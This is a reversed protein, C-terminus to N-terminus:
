ESIPFMNRNTYDEPANGDTDDDQGPTGAGRLLVGDM